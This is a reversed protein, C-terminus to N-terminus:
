INHLFKSSATLSSHHIKLEPVAALVHNSPPVRRRRTPFLPRQPKGADFLQLKRRWGTICLKGESIPAALRFHATSPTQVREHNQQSHTVECLTTKQNPMRMLWSLTAHCAMFMGLYESSLTAHENSLLTMLDLIMIAELRLGTGTRLDPMFPSVRHEGHL